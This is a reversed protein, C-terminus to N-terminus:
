DRELSRFDVPVGASQAAEIAAFMGPSIGRDWYVAVLDAVRMWALGAGIGLSRDEPVDDDLVLTYLLHSAVPAEGRRLSDLLAREAYAVNEEVAGAYPSEVVVRRM